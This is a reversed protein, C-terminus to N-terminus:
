KCYWKLTKKVQAELSFKEKAREYGAQGFRASKEPNKLLDIIKEAMAVVDNPNVLYGTQAGTGGFAPDVVVESPGGFYSSVVPKKCAMASLNFMGFTEFCLSPVLCVDSAYYASKLDEEGLFGIFVVKRELNLKKILKKMEKAYQNEKGAILLVVNDIKGTIKKLATLVQEGGKAGSLRAGFFLVNKGQLNYKQQFSKIEESNAKWDDVDIGNYITELNKIGNAELLKKLADSVAFIKDTYKLYHRIILNRFPNYRKKAERIQEWVSIKHIYNGDKPMLKGYHIAMVDHATLFVAPAYKKAIKLCYYSLHSHINHAHIIDPKIERIIKKVGSVTRPNYLGLWARWREHYDTYIRFVELREFDIKGQESKTQVTTIVFVRHGQKNLARALDYTVIGAGGFSEPPFSDNLFLIKMFKRNSIMRDKRPM